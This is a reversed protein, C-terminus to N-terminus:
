YWTGYGISLVMDWIGYGMDWIGHHEMYWAWDWVGLWLSEWGMGYRVMSCAVHLIMGHGIIDRISCEALILPSRLAATL